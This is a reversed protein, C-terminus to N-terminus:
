GSSSFVQSGEEATICRRFITLVKWLSWGSFGVAVDAGRSEMGGMALGVILGVWGRFCFCPCGLPRALFRALYSSVVFFLRCPPTRTLTTRSSGSAPPYGSIQKGPAPLAPFGACYNVMPLEVGSSSCLVKSQGLEKDDLNRRSCVGRREM